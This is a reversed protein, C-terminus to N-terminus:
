VVCHSRVSVESEMRDLRKYDDSIEKLHAWAIKGTLVPEDHTVDIEPDSSGHEYEVELGSRFKNLEIESWSIGLKALPVRKMWGSKERM